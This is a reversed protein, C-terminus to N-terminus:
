VAISVARHNPDATRTAVRVPRRREATWAAIHARTNLGLVTRINRVHTEVTRVSVYLRAGIQRNTLGQAVLAAVEWERESLTDGSPQNAQDTPPTDLAYSVAQKSSLSQGYTLAANSQASPLTQRATMNATEVRQRWWDAAAHAGSGGMTEAAALLRLGHECRRASIARVALGELALATHHIHDSERLMRTFYEEARHLDGAELALAGTAHLLTRLPGPLSTMPLLDSCEGILRAGAAADQWYVLQEAAAYLCLAALMPDERLDDGHLCERLDAMTPGAAPMRGVLTLLTTMRGRQADVKSSLVEGALRKATRHEGRWAALVAETALAVRYGDSGAAVRDLAGTLERHAGPAAGTVMGLVDSAAALVLQDPDAGTGLRELEAALCDRERM